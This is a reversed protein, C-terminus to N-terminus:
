WGPPQHANNRIQEAMEANLHETRQHLLGDLGQQIDRSVRDKDYKAPTQLILMANLVTDLIPGKIFLHIVAVPPLPNNGEGMGPVELSIDYDVDEGSVHSDLAEQVIKALEDTIRISGM